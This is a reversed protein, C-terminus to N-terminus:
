QFCVAAIQSCLDPFGILWNPSVTPFQRESLREVRDEGDDGGEAVEDEGGAKTTESLESSLKFYDLFVFNVLSDSGGISVM